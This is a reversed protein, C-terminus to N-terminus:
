CMHVDEAFCRICRTRHFEVEPIAGLSGKGTRETQLSSLRVGFSLPEMNPRAPEQM